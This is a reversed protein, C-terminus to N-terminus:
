SSDFIGILQDSRDGSHASTTKYISSDYTTIYMHIVTDLDNLMVRVEYRVM